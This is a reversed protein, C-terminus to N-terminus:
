EPQAGAPVLFVQLREGDVGSIPHDLLPISQEPNFVQQPKFWKLPALRNPRSRLMQTRMSYPYGYELRPPDDAPILLYLRFRGAFKALVPEVPKLKVPTPFEGAHLTYTRGRPLAVEYRRGKAWARERVYALDPDSVILKGLDENLEDVTQRLSHNQVLFWCLLAAIAVAFGPVLRSAQRLVHM